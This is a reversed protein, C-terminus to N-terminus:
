QSGAAVIILRLAYAHPSHSQDIEVAFIQSIKQRRQSRSGSGRRTGFLARPQKIWIGIGSHWQVRRPHEMNFVKVAGCADQFLMLYRGLAHQEVRHLNLHFQCIGPRFTSSWRAVLRTAPSTTASEKLSAPQLTDRLSRHA